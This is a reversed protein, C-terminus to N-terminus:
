VYKEILERVKHKLSKKWNSTTDNNIIVHDWFDVKDDLDPLKDDAGDSVFLGNPRHVLVKHIHTPGMELPVNPIKEGVYDMFDTSLEPIAESENPFRFDSVLGIKKQSEFLEMVVSRVWYDKDESRKKNGVFILM